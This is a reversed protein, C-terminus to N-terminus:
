MIKNHCLLLAVYSFFDVACIGGHEMDEVICWKTVSIRVHTCMEIVFHFMTPYKYLTSHSKRSQDIIYRKSLRYHLEM